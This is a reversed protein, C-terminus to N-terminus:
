GVIINHVQQVEPQGPDVSLSNLIPLLTKGFAEFDEMSDWVDTIHVGEASGSCVHYQRGKPSGAGAANLQKIAENYKQMTFGASTFKLILSM